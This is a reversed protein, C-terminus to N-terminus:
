NFLGPATGPNLIDQVAPENLIDIAYGITLTITDVGIDHSLLSFDLPGIERTVTSGQVNVVDVQVGPPSSVSRLLEVMTLDVNDVVMEINPIRDETDEPLTMTFPLATWQYGNFQIPVTNNVIRLPESMEAHTFTVCTLMVSGSHQALLERMTNASISRVAM